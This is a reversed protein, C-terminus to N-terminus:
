GTRVATAAAPAARTRRELRDVCAAITIDGTVNLTTRCMDLLRDPGIILALFEAPVGVYQLILAVFPLSGGPVGATGIGGLVAMLAVTVQQLTSLDAGYVQALFLVTVGEYLATGNQNATAGVTLVFNSVDRHIGAREQSVRLATPLTATSASTAFATLIAESIRGFFRLPNVRVILALVLGYVGFFHLALGALVTAMFWGLIRLVDLGLDATLAFMLGAVGLPALRMAWGIIVMVADYVGQFFAIVPGARERAITLAIGFLLAFFMVSLMGGGPSSADAAGVLERLLNRPVIDLLTERASKAEQMQGLHKATEAKYRERLLERQEDALGQGPRINNVLAIGIAVSVASLVVTFALTTLGVRGLRRVDGLEAVGLVLATFVLPVVVMFILNLFVQGIPRAINTATWAVQKHGETGPPWLANAALGLGAGIVLGILIQWHLAVRRRRRPPAPPAAAENTQM